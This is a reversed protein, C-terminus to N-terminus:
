LSKVSLGSIEGLKYSKIIVLWVSNSDKQKDIFLLVHVAADTKNTPSPPSKSNVLDSPVPIWNGVVRLIIDPIFM